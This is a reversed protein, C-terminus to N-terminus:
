QLSSAIKALAGEKLSYTSVRISQFPHLQLVFHILCCAPVIMDARMEIMGPTLVRQDRNKAILDAYIAHFVASSLPTEPAERQYTIGSRICFMESLTDFSGSSGVLVRPDYRKLAGALPALTDAFHRDLAEIECSSIPDHQIFRELLRQGGIEFSQKWSVHKDNGIIFEVSGAGIDMVLSTEDGLLIAARVGHFILEAEEDGSITTVDIGTLRRIADVLSSSNRANRIASTGFAYVTEIGHQEIREKFGCMAQLAREVAEDAIVGDNIGGKGIKVVRHERLLIRLDRRDVEALLLHFTNTGMDIIAIKRM